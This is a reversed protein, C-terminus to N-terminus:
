NPALFLSQPGLMQLFMEKPQPNQGESSNQSEDTLGAINISAAKSGAASSLDPSYPGM